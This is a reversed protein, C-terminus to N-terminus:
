RLSVSVPLRVLSGQLSQTLPGSLSWFLLVWGLWRNLTGLWGDPNFGQFVIHSLDTFKSKKKIRKRREESLKQSLTINREQQSQYWLGTEVSGTVFDRVEKETLEEGTQEQHLKAIEAFSREGNFLQLLQYQSPPVRLMWAKEPIYIVVIPEQNENWEERVVIDPNLKYNKSAIVQTPLEPLAALLAEALNM